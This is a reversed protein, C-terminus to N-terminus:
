KDPVPAPAEQLQTQASGFGSNQDLQPGRLPHAHRTKGAPLQSCSALTSTCQHTGAETCQGTGPEAGGDCWWSSPVPMLDRDNYPPVPAVHCQFSTSSGLWVPVPAGLVWLGQSGLALCWSSHRQLRTPLFQPAQQQEMRTCILWPHRSAPQPQKSRRM